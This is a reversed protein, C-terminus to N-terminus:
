MTICYSSNNKIDPWRSLGEPVVRLNHFNGKGLLGKSSSSQDPNAMAAVVLPAKPEPKTYETPFGDINGPADSDNEQHQMHAQLVDGGDELVTYKVLDNTLYCASVIEHNQVLIASIADSAEFEPNVPQVESGLTIAANEAFSDLSADGNAHRLIIVLRLLLILKTFEDLEPLAQSQGQPPNTM